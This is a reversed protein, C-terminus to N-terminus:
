NKNLYDIFKKIGEKLTIPEIKLLKKMLDTDARLDEVYNKDKPIYTPKVSPNLEKLIIEVLENLSTPKGTGVNIIGAYDIEAATIIAKVVDEIWIFDRTQKGDGFIVPPKGEKSEKIFLYIASAFDKKWEEGPGYSAFIRLGVSKVYDSYSNALGECAVKAAGYLNRPKICIDEKHPMQNGGYNSGSSPYVLKKVKNQKAYELANYLGFVTEYYCKVPEKNFLTISSPGAFHFIYEIDKPLKEWSEKKSVDDEILHVSKLFSLKPKAIDIDIYSFNDISWIEAQSEFLAKGLNSGILGTIGTILIKKGKWEM